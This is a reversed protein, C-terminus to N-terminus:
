GRSGSGTRGLHCREPVAEGKLIKAVIAATKGVLDAGGFAIVGRLAGEGRSAAKVLDAEPGFMGVGFVAVKSLDAIVSGSGKAIEDMIAQSAGAGGDSSYALVLKM